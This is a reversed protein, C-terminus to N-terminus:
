TNGMNVVDAFLLLKYTRVQALMFFASRDKESGVSSTHFLAADVDELSFEILSM